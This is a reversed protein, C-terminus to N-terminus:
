AAGAAAAGPAHAGPAATWRVWRGVFNGASHQANPDAHHWHAWSVRVRQTGVHEAQWGVARASPDRWGQLASNHLNLWTMYAVYRISPQLANDLYQILQPTSAVLCDHMFDVANKPYGRQSALHVVQLLM